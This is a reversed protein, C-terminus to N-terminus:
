ANQGGQDSTSRHLYASEFAEVDALRYRVLRGIRIFPCGRGNLRDADLKKLSCQWRDALLQGTLLHTTHSKELM